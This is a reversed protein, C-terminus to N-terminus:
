QAIFETIRSLQSELVAEMHFHHSGDVYSVTLDPILRSALAELQKHRGGLGGRALLLLTPMSLAELVAAVQEESLKVASAGRLRHDTTWTYGGECPKLNRQVLLMAAEAPLGRERRAAVADGVTPFIRDDRALLRGKDELFRRMQRPFSSAPVPEPGVADLMILGAIREPFSAAFLSAIIAGRSHGVLAFRTWGLAEIIGLVEPLDDWIQYTADLSRRQSQGHGTLDPAVVYCGTLLPGLVAFSAANDLWGHLCLVPTGEPDGWALGALELGHVTWHMERASGPTM